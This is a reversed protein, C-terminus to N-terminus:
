IILTLKTRKPLWQDSKKNFQIVYILKKQHVKAIWLIIDVNKEYIYYKGPLM